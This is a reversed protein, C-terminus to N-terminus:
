LVGLRYLERDEDTMAALEEITIETAGLDSPSPLALRLPEGGLADLIGLSEGVDLARGDGAGGVKWEARKSIAHYSLLAAIGVDAHGSSSRDSDYTLKKSKPMFKARIAQLDAVLDNDPCIGLVGRELAAVLDEVMDAKDDATYQSPHVKEPFEARLAQGMQMGIGHADIECHRILPARLLEAYLKEQAPLPKHALAKCREFRYVGDPYEVTWVLASRDHTTGVDIGLGWRTGPAAEGPKAAKPLEPMQVYLKIAAKLMEGSFASTLSSLFRCMYNQAWTIPDYQDRLDAVDHGAGGAVAQMINIEFKSWKPKENFIEYYVGTDGWPTSTCRFKYGRASTMPHIADWILADHPTKAAEDWFVDGHYGAITAPNAPLSIIRVGNFLRIVETAPPKGGEFISVGATRLSANNFVNAWRRAKVMIEKAQNMSASVIIECKEPDEPWELAQLVAELAIVESKGTQRAWNAVKQRARDQLWEMQYPRLWERLICAIAERLHELQDDTLGFPTKRSEDAARKSAEMELRQVKSMKTSGPPRGPPRGTSVYPM